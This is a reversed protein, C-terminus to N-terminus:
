HSRARRARAAWPAEYEIRNLVEFANRVARGLKTLGSALAANLQDRGHRYNRDYIEDIMTVM